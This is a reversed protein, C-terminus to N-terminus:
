DKKKTFTDGRVLTNKWIDQREKETVLLWQTYLMPGVKPDDFLQGNWVTASRPKGKDTDKWMVQFAVILTDVDRGSLWRGFLPHEVHVRGVSTNYTGKITGDESADFFCTSGLENSWNGTLTKFSIASTM